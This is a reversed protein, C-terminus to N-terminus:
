FFHSHKKFLMVRVLTAKAMLLYEVDFFHRLHLFSPRVLVVVKQKVQQRKVRSLSADPRLVVFFPGQKLMVMELVLRRYRM